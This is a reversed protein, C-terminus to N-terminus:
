TWSDDYSASTSDTKTSTNSSAAGVAISDGLAGVADSLWNNAKDTKEGTEINQYLTIVAGSPLRVKIPTSKYQTETTTDDDRLASSAVAGAVSAIVPVAAAM